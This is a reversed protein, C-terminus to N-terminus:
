ALDQSFIARGDELNVLLSVVMSWGNQCRLTHVNKSEQDDRYLQNLVVSLRAWSSHTRFGGSSGPLAAISRPVAFPVEDKPLRWLLVCVKHLRQPLDVPICRPVSALTTGPEFGTMM